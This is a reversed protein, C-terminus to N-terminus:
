GAPFSGNMAWILLTHVGALPVTLLAARLIHVTLQHQRAGIEPDANSKILYEAIRCTLSLADRLPFLLLVASFFALPVILTGAICVGTRLGFRVFCDAAAIGSATGRWFFLVLLFPQGWGWGGLLWIGGLLLLVPVAALCFVDWLTRVANSYTLGHTLLLHLSFDPFTGRLVTGCATGALFLLLLARVPDIQRHLASTRLANHGIM